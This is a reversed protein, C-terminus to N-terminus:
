VDVFNSIEDSGTLDIEILFSQLNEYSRNVEIPAPKNDFMENQRLYHLACDACDIRAKQHSTGHGDFFLDHGIFLRYYFIITPHNNVIPYHQEHLLIYRTLIHHQTAWTNM